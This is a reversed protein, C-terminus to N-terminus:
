VISIKDYTICGTTTTNSINLLTNPEELIYITQWNDKAEISKNFDAVTHMYLCDSSNYFKWNKLLLQINKSPNHTFSNLFHFKVGYIPVHTQVQVNHGNMRFNINQLDSTHDPAVKNFLQFKEHNNYSFKLKNFPLNEIVWDGLQVKNTSFNGVHLAGTAM